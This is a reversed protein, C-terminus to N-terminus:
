AALAARSAPWKGQSRLLDAFAVVGVAALSLTSLRLAVHSEGFTWLFPLAWLLQGLLPMAAFNYYHLGEGRALGFATRDFFCDDHLPFDQEGPPIAALLVGWLALPILGPALLLARQGFSEAAEDKVANSRPGGDARAPSTPPCRRRGGARPCSRGSVHY